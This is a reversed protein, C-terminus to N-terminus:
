DGISYYAHHGCSACDWQDGWPTQSYAYAESSCKPCRPKPAAGHPIGNADRSGLYKGTAVHRWGSHWAGGVSEPVYDIDQGCDQCARYAPTVTVDAVGVAGAALLRRAAEVENM